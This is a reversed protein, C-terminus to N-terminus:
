RIVAANNGSNDDYWTVRLLSLRLAFGQILESRFIGWLLLFFFLSNIQGKSQSTQNSRDGRRNTRLSVSRQVDKEMTAWKRAIMVLAWFIRVLLVCNTGFSLPLWLMFSFNWIQSLFQFAASSSSSSLLFNCFPSPDNPRSDSCSLRSDYQFIFHFSMSFISLYKVNTRRKNLKM